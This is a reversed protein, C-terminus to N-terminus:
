SGSIRNQEDYEKKKSEYHEKAKADAEEWEKRLVERREKERQAEVLEQSKTELKRPIVVRGCSPCRFKTPQKKSEPVVVKKTVADRKPVGGPLPSTKIQYLDDVDSGDTIKKWNCIECYLQYLKNM